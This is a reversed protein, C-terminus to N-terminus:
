INLCGFSNLQNIFKEVDIQATHYDIAFKDCLLKALDDANCSEQSLHEWLFAGAQNLSFVGHLRDAEKGVPVVIFEDAIEQLVFSDKIKMDM